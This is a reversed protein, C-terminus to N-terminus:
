YKRGGGKLFSYPEVLKVVINTYDYEICGFDKFNESDFPKYLFGQTSHKKLVGFLYGSDFSSDRVFVGFGAIPTPQKKQYEVVSIGRNPSQDFVTNKEYLCISYIRYRFVDAPLSNIHGTIGVNCYKYKNLLKKAEPSLHNIVTKM